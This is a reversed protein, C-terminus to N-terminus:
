EGAPLARSKRSRKALSANADAGERWIRQNLITLGKSATAHRVRKAASSPRGPLIVSTLAGEETRSLRTHRKFSLRVKLVSVALEEPPGSNVPVGHPQM